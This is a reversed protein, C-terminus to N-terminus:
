SYDAVALHEIVPYHSGTLTGANVAGIILVADTYVRATRLSPTVM